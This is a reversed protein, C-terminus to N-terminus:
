GDTLSLSAWIFRAIAANNPVIAPSTISSFKLVWAASTPLGGAAVLVFSV